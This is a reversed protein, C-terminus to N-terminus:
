DEKLVVRDLKTWFTRASGTGSVMACVVAILDDDSDRYPIIETVMFRDFEREGPKAKLLTERLKTLLESELLVLKGVFNVNAIKENPGMTM